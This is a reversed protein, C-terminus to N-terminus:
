ESTAKALREEWFKEAMEHYSLVERRQEPNALKIRQFRERVWDLFFRASAKNVRKKVPGIEVYYPATSAFRFTKANEVIARVLFWGSEDFVVQGLGNERWYAYSMTREVHGNKIIELCRIPDQSVLDATIQLVWHQGAPATFVHGPLEDNARVRLLPGNTV